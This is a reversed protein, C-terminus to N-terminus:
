VRSLESAITIYAKCLDACKEECPDLILCICLACGALEDVGCTIPLLMQLEGSRGSVVKGVPIAGHIVTQRGGAKGLQRRTHMGRPARPLARLLM